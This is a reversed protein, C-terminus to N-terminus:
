SGKLFIVHSHNINIKVCKNMRESQFQVKNYFLYDIKFPKNLIKEKLTFKDKFFERQFRYLVLVYTIRAHRNWYM